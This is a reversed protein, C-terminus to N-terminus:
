PSFVPKSPSKVLEHMRISCCASRGSLACRPLTRASPLGRRKKSSNASICDAWASFRAISTLSLDATCNAEIYAKARQIVPPEINRARLSVQSSILALHNAFVELLKFAAAFARKSHGNAQRSYAFLLIGAPSSPPVPVRVKLSREPFRSRLHCLLVHLGTLEGFRAVSSAIRRRPWSHRRSQHARLV